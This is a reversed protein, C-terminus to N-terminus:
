ASGGQRADPPEDRRLIELFAHEITPRVPEPEPTTVGQERLWGALAAAEAAGDRFLVQLDRGFLAASEVSPHREALELARGAPTAHYRYLHGGTLAKVEAPTGEAVIRGRNMLALRHCREAEDMVHTTVLISTGREALEGIIDFFARRALPDVGSTPEDLLLVKPTHILACALSLKQKMGGSLHGALR